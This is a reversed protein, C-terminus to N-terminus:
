RSARMRKQMDLLDDFGYALKVYKKTRGCLEFGMKKYLTLARKNKGFVTLFVSDFKGRCMKMVGAMLKKGFGMDRYAPLLSIGFDGCHRVSPLKRRYVAAWGVVREGDVAVLFPDKERLTKRLQARVEPLPPAKDEIIYRRERAVAQWCRRYSAADKLVIPRIKVAM